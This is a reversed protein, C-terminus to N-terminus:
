APPMWLAECLFSLILSSLIHSCPNNEHSEHSDFSRWADVKLLEM